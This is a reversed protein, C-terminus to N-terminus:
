KAAQSAEGIMKEIQRLQDQAQSLDAANPALKVYAGLEAAAAAYDQKEILVLGLLYQSRPNVHNPDLKVAQRARQEAETYKKMNFNAVASTYWAQPYDFPDLRVAQDLYHGSEEWKQQQASMLGLELYPPVLKPDADIAKLMANRAQDNNKQQLRVKGLNMWAEAYKPYEAVAKEFDKAADDPKNKLLLQLGRDYAKKAEKPALLSSTSISTGEVGAIRHLVIMGIDSNDLSSRIFMNVNDSTYGGLSARLECNNLSNAYPDTALSSGGGASQAGGFGGNSASNKMGFGSDSAEAMVTANQGWQFSFRGKSDTYAVTRSMGSCLRQITVNQPVPSGDDLVVKGSVYIPRSNNATGKNTTTPTSPVTQGPMQGGVGGTSPVSLNTGSAQGYLAHTGLAIGSSIVLLATRNM